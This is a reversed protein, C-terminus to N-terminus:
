YGLMSWIPSHPPQGDTPLCGLDCPLGKLDLYDEVLYLGAEVSAQTLAEDCPDTLEGWSALIQSIYGKKAAGRAEVFACLERYNIVM